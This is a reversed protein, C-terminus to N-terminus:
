ATFFDGLARAIRGPANETPIHGAQAPADVRCPDEEFPGVQRHLGDGGPDSECRRDVQAATEAACRPM